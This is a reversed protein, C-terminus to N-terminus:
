VNYTKTSTQAKSKKTVKKTRPKKTTKKPSKM